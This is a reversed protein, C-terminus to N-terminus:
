YKRRVRKGFFYQLRSIGHSKYLDIQQSYNNWARIPYFLCYIVIYVLGMAWLASFTENENTIWFLIFGLFWYFLLTICVIVITDM